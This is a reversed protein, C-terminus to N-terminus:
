SLPHLTCNTVHVSPLTRRRSNALRRSCKRAAGPNSGHGAHAPCTATALGAAPPALRQGNRHCRTSWTTGGANAASLFHWPRPLRSRIRDGAARVTAPACAARGPQAVPGSTRVQGSEFRRCSTTGDANRPSLAPSSFLDLVLPPPVLREAASSRAHARRSECGRGGPGSGHLEVPMGRGFLMFSFCARRTTASVSM